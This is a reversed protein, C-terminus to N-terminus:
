STMTPPRPSLITDEPRLIQKWALNMADTNDGVAVIRSSKYGKSRTRQVIDMVM